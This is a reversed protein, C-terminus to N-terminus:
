RINTQIAKMLEDAQFPKMLFDAARYRESEFINETQGHATLMIVPTTMTEKIGRLRSLTEIGDMDPMAIDLIILDPNQTKAIQIGERGDKATVVTYNEGILWGELVELFDSEDDIALITKAM